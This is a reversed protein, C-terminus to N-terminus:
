QACILIHCDSVKMLRVICENRVQAPFKSFSKVKSPHLVGRFEAEDVGKVPEYDWGVSRGVMTWLTGRFQRAAACAFSNGKRTM